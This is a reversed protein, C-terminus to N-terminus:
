VLLRLVKTLGKSANFWGLFSISNISLFILKNYNHRRNLLQESLNGIPLLFKGFSRLLDQIQNITTVGRLHPIMKILTLIFSALMMVDLIMTTSIPM